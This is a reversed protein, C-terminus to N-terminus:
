SFAQILRRVTFFNNNNAGLAGTVTLMTDLTSINESDIMDRNDGESVTGNANFWQHVFAGVPFQIGQMQLNRQRMTRRDIIYPKTSTNFRITANSWGDSPVGNLQLWHLLHLLTGQKQLTNIVDANQSLVPNFQEITRVLSLVPYAFKTPDPLEYYEYSIFLNGVITDVLTAADTPNGFTVQLTVQTQPSQLDILGAMFNLGDNASIPLYLSFVWNNNGAALPVAYVFPDPTTSGIGGLDPRYGGPNLLMQELYAGYGSTQWIFSNLNSNVIIRELLNWPMYPNLVGGAGTTHVVAEFTLYIGSLFGVPPIIQSITQGAGYVIPNIPQIDQRTGSRFPLLNQRQGTLANAPTM